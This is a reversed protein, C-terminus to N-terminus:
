NTCKGQATTLPILPFREPIFLNPAQHVLTGAHHSHQGWARPHPSQTQSSQMAGRISMERCYINQLECDPWSALSPQSSHFSVESKRSVRVGVERGVSCITRQSLALATRQASLSGPSDLSQQQRPRPRQEVGAFRSGASALSFLISNHWKLVPPHCSHPCARCFHASYFRQIPPLLTGWTGWAVQKGCCQTRSLLLTVSIPAWNHGARQLATLQLGGLRSEGAWFAATPQWERRWPIKGVM